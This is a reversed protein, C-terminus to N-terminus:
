APQAGATTPKTERATKLLVERPSADHCFLLNLLLGREAPLESLYRVYTRSPFFRAPEGPLYMSDFRSALLEIFERASSGQEILTAWSSLQRRETRQM